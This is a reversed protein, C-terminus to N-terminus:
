CETSKLCNITKLKKADEIFKQYKYAQSTKIDHKIYPKIITTKEKFDTKTCGSKLYNITDNLLFDSYAITAINCSEVYRQSYENRTNNYMVGESKSTYKYDSGKVIIQKSQSLIQQSCDVCVVWPYDAKTYSLQYNKYFPKGRHYFGNDDFFKGSIKPNTTDFVYLDRYTPCKISTLNAKALTLCTGVLEVTIFNGYTKTLPKTVIIKPEVAQASGVSVSIVLIAILIFGKLYM